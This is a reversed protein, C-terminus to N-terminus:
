KRRVKEDYRRKVERYLNKWMRYMRREAVVNDILIIDLVTATVIGFVLIVWGITDM